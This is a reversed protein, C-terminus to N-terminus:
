SLVKKDFTIELNVYKVNVIYISFFQFIFKYISFSVLNSQTDRSKVHPRLFSDMLKFWIVKPTYVEDTSSGSKKSQHIKKLEQLYSSRLNKFKILVHVETFGDIGMTKAIRKAAAGRCERSKYNKLTRDWLIPESEYLEIFKITDRDCMKFINSTM